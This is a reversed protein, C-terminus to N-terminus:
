PKVWISENSGPIMVQTGGNARAEAQRKADDYIANGVVKVGEWAAEIVKEAGFAKAADWLVKGLGAEQVTGDYGGNIKIMEARSLMSKANQLSLKKM